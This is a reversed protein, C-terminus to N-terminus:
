QFGYNREEIRVRGREKNVTEGYAIKIEKANQVAGIYHLSYIRLHRSVFPSRPFYKKQDDVSWKNLPFNRNKLYM